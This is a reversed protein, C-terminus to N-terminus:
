PLPNNGAGVLYKCGDAGIYSLHTGGFEDDIWLYGPTKGSVSHTPGNFYFSAFQKIKWPVKYDHGDSGVWHLDNSNDIWMYGAKAVGPTSSVDIGLITHKWPTASIFCLDNGEVWIYGKKDSGLQTTSPVNTFDVNTPTIAINPSGVATGKFYYTNNSDIEWGACGINGAYCYEVWYSPPLSYTFRENLAIYSLVTFNDHDVWKVTLNTDINYTSGGNNDFDFICCGNCIEWGPDFGTLNYSTTETNYNWVGQYRTWGTPTQLSMFDKVPMNFPSGYWNNKITTNNYNTVGRSIRNTISTIM